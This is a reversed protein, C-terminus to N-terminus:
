CLWFGIFRLPFSPCAFISLFLIICFFRRFIIFFCSPVSSMPAFLSPGVFFSLLTVNKFSFSPCSFFVFIFPSTLFVTLQLINFFLLRLSPLISLSHHFHSTVFYPSSLSPSYYFRSSVFFLRPLYFNFHCSFFILYIFFFGLFLM